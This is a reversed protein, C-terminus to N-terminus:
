RPRAGSGAADLLPQQRVVTDPRSRSSRSGVVRDNAIGVLWGCLCWTHPSQRPAAQQWAARSHASWAPPDLSPGAPELTDRSAGSQCVPPYPGPQQTPNTSTPQVSERQRAMKRAVCGAQKDDVSLGLQVNDTGAWQKSVREGCWCVGIGFVCM